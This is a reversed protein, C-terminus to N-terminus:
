YAWTTPGAESRPTTSPGPPSPRLWLSVRTPETTQDVIGLLETSLTDLDIQDRLRASFAEITKAADYRRRNFRRDVVAQIRRRAPQFLAAVALTSAAVALASEGSVPNLLQGLGFVGVTYVAGLLVTLLGYVLTRNIVRDIDYLRYKLVAVGIAIPILSVGVPFVVLEGLLPAVQEAVAGLGPFFVLEVAVALTFWKLQQREDGRARRFRLVVSALVALVLFPVALGTITQVLQVLGEASEMGLPNQPNGALRSIPGPTLLRATLYLGVALGMAWAVPRWRRSLLRGTPFLLILFPLLGLLAGLWAINALLPLLAWASSRGQGAALAAWVEKSGLFSLIFTFGIAWCLWGIRNGPRRTLILAGVTAFALFPAATLHHGLWQHTSLTDNALKLAFGLVDILIVLLWLGWALWSASRPRMRDRRPRKRAGAEWAEGTMGDM